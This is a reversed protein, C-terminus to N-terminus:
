GKFEPLYCMHVNSLGGRDTGFIVAQDDPTFIPHPHSHQTLWSTDHVCLIQQKALGDEYKVMAMYRGGDKPGDIMYAGDAIGYTETSNVQVHMPKEGPLYEFKRMGTGDPAIFLDACHWPSTPTDRRGYQTVINGKKSFFEHGARELYKKTEVIPWVEMTQANVVWTRQVLHWHGEHNFVVINKDVPSTIIHSIWEHEGWIARAGGNLVDVRMVVSAPRRFLTESMSSYLKGTVTSLELEESYNLDVYQGDATICLAGPGFGKPLTYHEKTEFTKFDVSKLTHDSWYYAIERVEDILATQFYIGPEDTLQLMDGTAVEMSYLQWSGTRDSATLLHKGDATFLPQTFYPHVTNGENNSLRIVEVGTFEDKYHLPHGKYLQGVAM